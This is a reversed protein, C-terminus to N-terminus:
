KFPPNFHNINGSERGKWVREEREVGGWMGKGRDRGGGQM